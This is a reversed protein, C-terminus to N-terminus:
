HDNDALARIPVAVSVGVVLALMASLITKRKSM